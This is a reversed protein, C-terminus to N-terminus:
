LRGSPFAATLDEPSRRALIPALPTAALRVLAKLRVGPYALGHAYANAAARVRGTWLYHYGAKMWALGIRRRLAARHAPVTVTPLAATLADLNPVLLDSGRQFTNNGHRRLETLPDDIFAGRAMEYLTVMFCLDEARQDTRFTHSGLVEARIMITQTICPLQPIGVLALFTDGTIVKGGGARSPRTAVSAIEPSLDFQTEKYYGEADFRRLNTFVFGVDPESDLLALQRKLKGECWRDDADTFALFRGSAHEM